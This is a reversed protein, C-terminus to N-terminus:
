ETQQLMKVMLAAFDAIDFSSIGDETLASRMRLGFSVLVFLEGTKDAAVAGPIVGAKQGAAIWMKANRLAQDYYRQLVERVEPQDSKGLLYMLVKNGADQPNTLDPLSAAIERMPAAFTKTQEAAEFFRRNIEELREELVRCFLEDKSKVYHFIAGKSLGSRTIIDNLTTAACGKELILQKTTDLLLRKTRERKLERKM